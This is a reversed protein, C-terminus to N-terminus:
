SRGVEELFARIKAASKIGPREEVGSSVDVGAPRVRAIAEGVNEPTLGGALMVRGKADIRELLSWDFVTGSGPSAADFMTWAADELGLGALDPVSGDVRVARIAPLSLERMLGAPEAGHLQVFDLDAEAAVRAITAADQDRFVGVLRVTAGASRLAAGIEKAKAPDIRRPSGAAFVFGVFSAGAEAAAMADEIRTIGCVKAAPPGGLERVGGARDSRRLLHEGVLVADFRARGMRRADEASRIGSEAIRLAGAPIRPALRESTRLDVEFTRLDRNNVGIISAGAAIAADLEREDHVEVLADRGFQEVRAIMSRLEEEGLLSAILLIADAGAAVGADILRPDTVFHKMLVPLGSAEAAVTIWERSGRFHDEEAVISIAAAGGRRYESAIAAVDPDNVITGASPSAAKIEAIVRPSAGGGRLADRFRHPRRRSAAEVAERRLAEAPRLDAALRERAAAAIQSLLDSM